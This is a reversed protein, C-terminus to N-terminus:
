RRHCIPLGKIVRVKDYTGHVPQLRQRVAPGPHSVPRFDRAWGGILDPRLEARRDGAVEGRHKGRQDLERIALAYGAPVQEAAPVVLPGLALMFQLVPKNGESPGKSRMSSLRSAPSWSRPRCQRPPQPSPRPSVSLHETM